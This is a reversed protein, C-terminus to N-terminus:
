LMRERHATKGQIVYGSAFNWDQAINMECRLNTLGRPHTYHAYPFLDVM